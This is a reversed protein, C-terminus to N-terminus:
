VRDQLGLDSYLHLAYVGDDCACASLVPQGLHIKCADQRYYRSVERAGPQHEGRVALSM